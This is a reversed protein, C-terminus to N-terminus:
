KTEKGLKQVYVIKAPLTVTKIIVRKELKEIRLRLAPVCTCHVEDGACKEDIINKYTEKIETLKKDKEQCELIKKAIIPKTRAVTENVGSNFDNGKYNIKRVEPLMWDEAQDLAKLSQIAKSLAELFEPQDREYFKISSQIEELLEIVKKNTM